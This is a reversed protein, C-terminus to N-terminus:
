RPHPPYPCLFIHLLTGWGVHLVPYAYLFTVCCCQYTCTCLQVILSIFHASGHMTHNSSIYNIYCYAACVSQSLVMIVCQYAKNSYPPPLPLPPPSPSPSPSPSPPAAIHCPPAFVEIFDHCGGGEGELMTTQPMLVCPTDM